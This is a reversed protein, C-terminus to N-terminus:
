LITLFSTLFCMLLQRVKLWVAWCHLVVHVDLGTSTSHIVSKAIDVWGEEAPETQRRIKTTQEDELELTKRTRSVNSTDVYQLSCPAQMVRKAHKVRELSLSVGVCGCVCVCVCM